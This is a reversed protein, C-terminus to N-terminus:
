KTTTYNFAHFICNNFPCCERNGNDSANQANDVENGFDDPTLWTCSSSKPLTMHKLARQPVYASHDAYDIRALAGYIKILEAQAERSLFAEEIHLWLHYITALDRVIEKRSLRDTYYNVIFKPDAAFRIKYHTGKNSDGGALLEICFAKPLTIDGSVASKSFLMKIYQIIKMM